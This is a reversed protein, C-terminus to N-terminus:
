NTKDVDLDLCTQLLCRLPLPMTSVKGSSLVDVQEKFVLYAAAATHPASPM